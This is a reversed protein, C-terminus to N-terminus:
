RDCVVTRPACQGVRDTHAACRPEAHAPAALEDRRVALLRGGCAERDGQRGTERDGQRGTETERDRDKDRDKDRDTKTETEADTNTQRQRQRYRSGLLVHRVSM